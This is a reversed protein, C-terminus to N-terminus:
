REENKSSEKWCMERMDGKSVWTGKLQSRRTKRNNIDEFNQHKENTKNKRTKRKRQKGQLDPTSKKNKHRTKSDKICLLQTRCNLLSIKGNEEGLARREYGKETERKQHDRRKKQTGKRSEMNRSTQRWWGRTLDCERKWKNARNKKGREKRRVTRREKFFKRVDGERIWSTKVNPQKIRRNEM